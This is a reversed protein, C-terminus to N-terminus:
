NGVASLLTVADIVKKSAEAILLVDNDVRVYEYGRPVPQPPPASRKFYSCDCCWAAVPLWRYLANRPRGRLSAAMTSRRWVRRVILVIIRECTIEFPPATMTSSWSVTMMILANMATMLNATVTAAKIPMRPLPWRSQQCQCCWRPPWFRSLDHNDGRLHEDSVSWPSLRNPCTIAGPRLIM